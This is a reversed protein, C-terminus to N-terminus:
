TIAPTKETFAHGFPNVSFPKALYPFKQRPSKLITLITPIEPNSALSDQEIM